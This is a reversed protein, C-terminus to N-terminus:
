CLTWIFILRPESVTTEGASDTVELTIEHEVGFCDDSYLRVTPNAGTGLVEEQIATQNTKWVLSSGTLTGDEADVGMGELAIDFYWLTLADDYGDYVYDPNDTGSDSAPTIITAEPATNGVGGTGGMGATGGVGGAGGTGGAGAMGGGGGTAGSGGSGGTGGDDSDSCAAMCLAAVITILLGLHRMVTGKGEFVL